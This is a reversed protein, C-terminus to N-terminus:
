PRYLIYATSTLGIIILQLLTLGPVSRTEAIRQKSDVVQFQLEREIELDGNDEQIEVNLTDGGTNQPTVMMQYIETQGPGLQFQKTDQGTDSFQAQMGYLSVEVERQTQKTNGVTLTVPIKAGKSAYVVQSNGPHTMTATLTAAGFKVSEFSTEWHGANDKGVACIWMEKQVTISPETNYRSPDEPCRYFPTTSTYLQRKSDNCGSLSDECVATANIGGNGLIEKDVTISPASFDLKVLTSNIDGENGAGDTTRYRLHHRGETDFHVSNGEKDPTCTPSDVCYETLDCGSNDNEPRDSCELGVTVSTNHWGETYNDRTIPKKMDVKVETSKIPEWNGAVDVSRYRVYTTGNESIEFSGSYPTTPECGTVNDRCYYTQQVGSAADNASLQVTQPTKHWQGDTNDTTEPDTTDVKVQVSDWAESNGANDWSRYQLDLVGDASSGVDVTTSSGITHGSRVTNGNKEIRWDVEHCGRTKGAHSDTCSLQVAQTTNQWGSKTYDDTTAPAGVDIRGIDKTNDSETPEIIEDNWDAKAKIDDTSSSVGLSSPDVSSATVTTSSGPSLTGFSEKVGNDVDNVYFGVEGGPVEHNGTNEVEVSVTATNGNKSASGGSVELNMYEVGDETETSAPFTKTEQSGGVRYELFSDGTKVTVDDGSEALYWSITKTHTGTTSPSAIVYEDSGVKNIYQDEPVEANELVAHIKVGSASKKIENNISDYVDSISSTTAYWCNDGDSNESSDMECNSGTVDEMDSTSAGSGYMIGHVAVGNNRADQAPGSPATGTNHIGDSLVVMAEVADDGSTYFNAEEIGGGLNTNGSASLGDISNKVSTKDSSLGQVKGASADFAVVGVEDGANVNIQDVYNKAATKVNDMKAGGMSGSEDLVLITEIAKTRTIENLTYEFTTTVKEGMVYDGSEPSVTVGGLEAVEGSQAFALGTLGLFIVTLVLTKIRDM